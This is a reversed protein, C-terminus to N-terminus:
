PMELVRCNLRHTMCKLDRTKSEDVTQLSNQSNQEQLCCFILRKHNEIYDVAGRCSVASVLHSTITPQRM